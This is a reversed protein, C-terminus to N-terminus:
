STWAALAFASKGARVQLERRIAEASHRRAHIQFYSFVREGGREWELRLLQANPEAERGEARAVFAPEVVRSLPVHLRDDAGHLLLDRETIELQGDFSAELSPLTVEAYQKGLRTALHTASVAFLSPAPTPPELGDSECREVASAIARARRLITGTTFAIGLGALAALAVLFPSM